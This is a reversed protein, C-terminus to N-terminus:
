SGACVASKSRVLEMVADFKPLESTPPSPGDGSFFVGFVSAGQADFALVGRVM